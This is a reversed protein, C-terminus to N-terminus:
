RTGEMKEGGRKDDKDEEVAGSERMDLDRDLLLHRDPVFSVM